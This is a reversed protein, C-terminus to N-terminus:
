ALTKQAFGKTYDFGAQSRWGSWNHNLLGWSEDLDQGGSRIYYSGSVVWQMWGGPGGPLTTLFKVICQAYVSSAGASTQPFGFETLVVPARNAVTAAADMAKYGANDLSGTIDACNTASNAYNHLEWVIKNKYSYNNLCFKTGNGIDNGFIITNLQTDYNIGSYFILPSPNAKNIGTAAPVMNEYWSVWNNGVNQSTTRLENRLSMSTFAPWSAAHTAMYALGRKWNAVNFYTDGFWANGDDHSCCWSGKSVHNDLHIYINQTNAEAAIADFVQRTTLVHNTYRTEKREQDHYLRVELRTTAETFSPNHSLVQKLVRTGNTQGLAQVFATKLSSDKGAYIDDIMEIAYTLRIVNSGVEKIRSMITSISQYQLGEPIMVDAAGPWNVGAYIVNKGQSNKIDRGSTTFPTYPWAARPIVSGAQALVSLGSLLLLSVHM